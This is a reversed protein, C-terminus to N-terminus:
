RNSTATGLGSVWILPLVVLRGICSWLNHGQNPPSLGANSFHQGSLALEFQRRAGFRLGTRLVETFEFGGGLHRVGAITTESFRGLGLGFEIFPSWRPNSIREWRLKGVAALARTTDHSSASRHGQFEGVGLDVHLTLRWQQYEHPQRRDLQLAVAYLNVGQGYGATVRVADADSSASFLFFLGGVATVQLWRM